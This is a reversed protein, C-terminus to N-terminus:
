LLYKEDFEINHERFLEKLEDIYNIKQHHAEQNMVYKILNEKADIHYTFAAYGTQWGSFNPFLATDKIHDTASLKLDKVLDSIAISPHIHTVIHLHDSVGGIRYLHCKKEYLVGSLYKFLEERGHCELSNVRNKTSYVIQYLLQTYTGM